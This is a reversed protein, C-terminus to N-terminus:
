GMPSNETKGQHCLLHVGQRTREEAQEHVHARWGAPPGDCQRRGCGLLVAREWLVVWDLLVPPLQHHSLSFGAHTETTETQLPFGDQSSVQKGRESDIVSLQKQASVTYVIVQGSHNSRPAGAVFYETSRDNVTTVAYGPVSFLSNLSPPFIM